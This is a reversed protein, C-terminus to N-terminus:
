QYFNPTRNLTCVRDTEYHADAKLLFAADTLTDNAHTADRFVRVLILSDPEVNTLTVSSSIETVMHKLATGSAAQEAYVTTTAPFVSGSSQNHGKAITYEFGWRCVGTNTGTTTWHTHLLVDGGPQYDHGIHFVVQAERIATASFSYASIGGTLITWSPDQAGSGKIVIDGLIDAWGSPQKAVSSGNFLESLAKKFGSLIVM